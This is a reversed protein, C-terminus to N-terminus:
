PDNFFGNIIFLDLAGQHVSRDRAPKVFLPFRYDTHAIDELSSFEFYPATPLGLQQWVRKTMTKNLSIANAVVKSGTYPVGLLECLAPVQAERGDGGIGEAINFCIHPRLTLIAEPLSSDGAVVDVYHGESELASAISEITKRRDFEAGADPPDDYTKEYDDILNAILAIRWPPKKRWVANPYNNVRIPQFQNM